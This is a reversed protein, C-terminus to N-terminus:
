GRRRKTAPTNPAPEVVFHYKFKASGIQLEAIYTGYASGAFPRAINAVFSPRQPGMEMPQLEMDAVATKKDPAVIKLRGAFTGIGGDILFVLALSPIIFAFPTHPPASGGISVSHGPIVGLISFKGGAEARVDEAILFRIDKRTPLKNDASV